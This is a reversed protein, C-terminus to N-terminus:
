DAAGLEKRSEEPLCWCRTLLIKGEKRRFYDHQVRKMNQLMEKVYKCCFSM